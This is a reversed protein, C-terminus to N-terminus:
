KNSFVQFAQEFREQFRQHAGQPLPGTFHLTRRIEEAEDRPDPQTQRRVLADSLRSLQYERRARQSEQPSEMGALLEMRICLLDAAKLNEDELRKRDEEDAKLLANCAAEFRSNLRAEAEKDVKALQEWSQRAEDVKAQREEESLGEAEELQVCLAAKDRMALRRVKERERRQVEAQGQRYERLRKRVRDSARRFRAELRPDSRGVQSWAEQAQSLKEEASSVEDGKLYALKEVQECIEILPGNQKNRAEFAENRQRNRHEVVDGCAARFRKWLEQERHRVTTGVDRWTRQIERVSSILDEQESDEQLATVQAILEEKRAENAQQIQSQHRDLSGLVARLRRAMSRRQKPDIENLGRLARAGERIAREYPKWDREGEEPEPASELRECLEQMEQLKQTRSEARDKFYARCPEYAKHAAANFRRWLRPGSAHHPADTPIKESAELDMWEKRAQRIRKDLEEAHLEQEPLGELQECLSIRIQNNSWHQWEQLERISAHVRGLEKKVEQHLQSPLGLLSKFRDNGQRWEMRAELLQGTKLRTEASALLDRVGQVGEVAESAQQALRERLAALGADFRAQEEQSAELKREEHLRTWNNSLRNVERERLPGGDKARREAAECLSEFSLLKLAVTRLSDQLTRRLRAYEEALEADTPKGLSKWQAISQELLRQGERRDSEQPDEQGALQAAAQELATLIDRHVFAPAEEQEPAKEQDTEQTSATAEPAGEAGDKAEAPASAEPQAPEKRELDASPAASDPEPDAAASGQLAQSSDEAAEDQDAQIEAPAPESAISAAAQASEEATEAAQDVAEEAAATEPQTAGVAVADAAAEESAVEQPPESAPQPSSEDLSLDEAPSAAEAQAEQPAPPAASELSNRGLNCAREFRARLAEEPSPLREWQEVLESLSPLDRTDRDWALSEAAECLEEARKQITEVDGRAIRLDLLKEEARRHALKDHKRTEKSVRELMEEDSLRELAKHRLQASADNSAIDALLRQSKIREIMSERLSEESAYRAVYDIQSEEELSEAARLRDKLAPADECSGALLDLLRQSAQKRVSADQDGSQIEMLLNPSSLRGVAEIRVGADPDNRVLEPLIERREEGSMAAIAEKRVAPDGHEWKPKNFIKKLM